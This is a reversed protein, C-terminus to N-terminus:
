DTKSNYMCLTTGTVILIFAIGDLKTFSEGNMKVSALANFLIALASIGALLVVGIYPLSAVRMLNSVILMVLGLIWLPHTYVLKNPNDSAAIKKHAKKLLAFSVAGIAVNLVNALVAIFTVWNFAM